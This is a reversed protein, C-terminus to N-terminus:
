FITQILLSFILAGFFRFLLRSLRLPYRRRWFSVSLFSRSFDTMGSQANGIANWVQDCLETYIVFAMEYKGEDLLFDAAERIRELEAM